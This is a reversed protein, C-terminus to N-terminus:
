PGTLLHVFPTIDFNNVAGDANIDALMHNCNPYQAYYQAYDPPSATLALVFPTIDFNNVVGDCNLDGPHPGGALLTFATDGSAFFFMAAGTSFAFHQGDGGTGVAIGWDPYTPQSAEVRVWYKVGGTAQFPSPLVFSYDYMTTGGYTGALTEGAIGGVDYYALYIEPLQPNTCHPQSGGAISAYFTVTFNFVRGYPAGYIYGGRWHIETITQDSALTFDDYAYMDSDSGDPDVWSSPILAGTGDPPRTFVVDANAEWLSLSWLAVLVLQKM